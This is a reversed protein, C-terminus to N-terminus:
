NTFFVYGICMQLLACIYLMDNVTNRSLYSWKKYIYQDANCLMVPLLYSFKFSFEWLPRGFEKTRAQFLLFFRLPFLVSSLRKEIQEDIRIQLCKLIANFLSRWMKHLVFSSHGMFEDLFRIQLCSSLFKIGIDSILSHDFAKSALCHKKLHIKVELFEDFIAEIVITSVGEANSTFHLNSCSCDKCRWIEYYYPILIKSELKFTSRLTKLDILLIVSFLVDAHFIRSPLMELSLNRSSLFIDNM